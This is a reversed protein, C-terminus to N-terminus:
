ENDESKIEDSIDEDTETIEDAEQPEEIEPIEENEASESEEGEDYLKTYIFKYIPKEFIVLMAFLLTFFVTIAMGYVFMDSRYIFEIDHNGANEIDFAIVSDLTKYYNIEQGDVRIKWGEDYPISTFITQDDSSTLITGTIHDDSYEDDIVLQTQSLQNIAGEFVEQDLYYFCEVNSKVYLVSAKLKMKLTVTEGNEYYGLYLVRSTDSGYFTGYKDGNLTLEVERAYESPLYFYVDGDRETKFTYNVYASSASDEPSYKVHGDAYGLDCNTTDIEVGSVPKFVEVAEESGLMATILANLNDYPTFHINEGDEDKLDLDNIADSVGYALSLAYPNYYANYDGETEYLLYYRALFTELNDNEDISEDAENNDAIIYKVGLLSDNVPNGGYYTTKHAASSYGLLNLISVTEKNLTSSSNSLGNMNLAMNDNARRHNIKEM